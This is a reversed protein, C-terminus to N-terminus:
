HNERKLEGTAAFAFAKHESSVPLDENNVLRSYTALATDDSKQAVAISWTEVWIGDEDKGSEISTVVANTRLRAVRFARPVNVWDKEPKFWVRASEGKIEVRLDFTEPKTPAPTVVSAVTLSGQWTGDLLASPEAVATSAFAVALYIPAIVLSLITRRAYDINLM